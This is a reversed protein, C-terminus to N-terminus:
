TLYAPYRSGVVSASESVGADFVQRQPEPGSYVAFHKPTSVVKLYKPDEGQIGTVFAVGM